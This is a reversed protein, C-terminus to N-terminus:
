LGGVFRSIPRMPDGKFFVSIASSASANFCFKADSRTRQFGHDRRDYIGIIVARELSGDDQVM